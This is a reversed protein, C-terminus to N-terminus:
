LDSVAYGSLHTYSVAYVPIYRTLVPTEMAMAELMVIGETEELTPFFFLDSGSYADM